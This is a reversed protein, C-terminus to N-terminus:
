VEVVVSEPSLFLDYKKLREPRFDKVETIFDTAPNRVIHTHLNKHEPLLPRKKRPGPYCQLGPAKPEYEKHHHLIVGLDRCAIETEIDCVWNPPKFVKAYGMELAAELRALAVESHWSRCEAFTHEFGHIAFTIWPYEHTVKHVPGFKNPITFATVHFRPGIAERLPLLLDTIQQESWLDDVDVFAKKM